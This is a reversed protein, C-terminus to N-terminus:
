HGLIGVSPFCYRIRNVNIIKMGTEEFLERIAADSDSEGKDIKGAPLEWIWDNIQERFQRIVVYKQTRVDQAIISVCDPAKNGHAFPTQKRSAITKIITLIKPIELNPFGINHPKQVM